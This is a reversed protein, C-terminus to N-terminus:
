PGTSRTRRGSASRSSPRRTRASRLRPLSSTSQSAAAHPLVRPPFPSLTLSSARPGLPRSQASCRARKRRRCAALQAPAARGRGGRRGLLAEARDWQSGGPTCGRQGRPSVNGRRRPAGAQGARDRDAAARGGGRHRYAGDHLALCPRPGFRHVRRSAIVFSFFFCLCAARSAAGRITSLARLTRASKAFNTSSRIALFAVQNAWSEAGESVRGRSASRRERLGEGFIVFSRADSRLFVGLREFSM